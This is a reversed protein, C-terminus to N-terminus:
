PHHPDGMPSLVRGGQPTCGYRPTCLLVPPPPIRHLFRAAAPGSRPGVCSGPVLGARSPLLCAPPHPHPQLGRSSACPTAPTDGTPGWGRFHGQEGWLLTRPGLLGAPRAHIGLEDKITYTFTKM